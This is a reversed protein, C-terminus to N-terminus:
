LSQAAARTHQFLRAGIYHLLACYQHLGASKRGARVAQV